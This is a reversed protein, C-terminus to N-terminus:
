APQQLSVSSLCILLHKRGTARLELQYGESLLRLGAALRHVSLTWLRKDVKGTESAKEWGSQHDIKSERSASSQRM